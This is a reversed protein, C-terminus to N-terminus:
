NINIIFDHIQALKAANHIDSESALLNGYRINYEITDNFLVIDQPVVGICKRISNIDYNYLVESYILIIM